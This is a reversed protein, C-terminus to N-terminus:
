HLTELWEKLAVNIAVEKYIMALLMKEADYSAGETACCKQGRRYHLDVTM